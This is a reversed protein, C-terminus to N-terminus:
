WGLGFVQAQVPGLGQVGKGPRRASSREGAIGCRRRGRLLAAEGGGRPGRRFGRRGGGRRRRPRAAAARGRRPSRRGCGEFRGRAAAFRELSGRRADQPSERPLAAGGDAGAPTPARHRRRAQRRRRLRALRMSRQRGFHGGDIALTASKGGAGRRRRGFIRVGGQLGAVVLQADRGRALHAGRRARSTQADVPAGSANRPKKLRM